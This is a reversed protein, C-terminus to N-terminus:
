KQGKYLEDIKNLTWKHVDGFVFETNCIKGEVTKANKLKLFQKYTLHMNMAESVSSGTLVNGSHKLEGLNSVKGNILLGLDHCDLYDWGNEGVHTFSLIIDPKNKGSHKGNFSILVWLNLGTGEGKPGKLQFTDNVFSM